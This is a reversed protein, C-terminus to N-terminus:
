CKAGILYYRISSGIARGVDLLVTILRSISNIFAGSMTSSAGGVIKILESNAIVM